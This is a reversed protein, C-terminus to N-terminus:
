SNNNVRVWQPCRPREMSSRPSKWSCTQRSKSGIWHCDLFSTQLLVVCLSLFLGLLSVFCLVNACVWTRHRPQAFGGPILIAINLTYPAPVSCWNAEWLPDVLGCLESPVGFFRDLSKNTFMHKRLQTKQWNENPRIDIKPEECQSKRGRSKWFYKDIDSCIIQRHKATSTKGSWRNWLFVSAQRGERM